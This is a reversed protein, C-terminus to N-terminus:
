ATSADRVKCEYYDRASALFEDLVYLSIGVSVVAGLFPVFGTLTKAGFKATIKASVKTLIKGFIPQLMTAVQSGGIGAAGGAVGGVNAAAVKVGIKFGLALVKAGFVPYAVSDVIAVGGVAAAPVTKDIAHSWLAFIAPLDADAETTAGMLEGTGIAGRGMLRFLYPLELAIGGGHLGPIVSTGLAAMTTRSELHERWKDVTQYGRAEAAAAEASGTVWNLSTQFIEAAQSDKKHRLALTATTM